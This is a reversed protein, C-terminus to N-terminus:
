GHQVVLTQRVRSSAARSQRVSLSPAVATSAVAPVGDPLNSVAGAPTHFLWLSLTRMAAWDGPTVQLSVLRSDADADPDPDAIARVLTLVVPDAGPLGLQVTGSGPVERAPLQVRVGGVSIATADTDAPCPDSSVRHRPESAISHVLTSLSVASSSM